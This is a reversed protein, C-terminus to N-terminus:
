YKTVKVLDSKSVLNQIKPHTSDSSFFNHCIKGLVVASTM